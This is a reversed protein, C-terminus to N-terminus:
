NALFSIGKVGWWRSYCFNQPFCQHRLHRERWWMRGRPGRIHSKTLGHKALDAPLKDPSRTRTSSDHSKRLLHWTRKLVAAEDRLGEEGQTVTAPYGVTECSGSLYIHTRYTHWDPLTKQTTISHCAYWIIMGCVSSPKVLFINM